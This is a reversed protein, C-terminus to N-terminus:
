ALILFDSSLTAPHTSQGIIAITVAANGGAGDADYTLAGTGADYAVASGLSALTASSGVSGTISSFVSKSIAIKDIGSVFDTIVDVGTAWDLVFRDAGDGGTLTDNGAGGSLTDAGTGGFLQDNGAGGLISDNGENGYITDNGNGGSLNEGGLYGSIFDDGDTGALVKQLM